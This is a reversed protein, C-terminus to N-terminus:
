IRFFVLSCTILSVAHFSFRVCVVCDCHAWMMSIDQIFNFFFISFLIWSSACQSKDSPMFRVLFISISIFGFIFLYIYETWTKHAKSMMLIDSIVRSVIRRNNIGNPWFCEWVCTFIRNKTRQQEVNQAFLCRVYVVGYMDFCVYFKIHAFCGASYHLLSFIFLDVSSFIFLISFAGCVYRAARWYWM